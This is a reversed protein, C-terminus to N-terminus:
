ELEEIVKNLVIRASDYKQDWAYTRGILVAADSYTSDQRLIQRCVKRAEIRNNNYAYERAKLLLQDLSVSEGAASTQAVVTLESFFFLFFVFVRVVSALMKLVRM